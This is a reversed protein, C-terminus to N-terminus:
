TKKTKLCQCGFDNLKVEGFVEGEGPGVDEGGGSDVQVQFRASVGDDQEEAMVGAGMFKCLKLKEELFAVIEEDSMEAPIADRHVCYWYQDKEPFTWTERDLESLRSETGEDLAEADGITLRSLGVEYKLCQRDISLEVAYREAKGFLSIWDWVFWDAGPEHSAGLPMRKGNKYYYQFSFGGKDNLLQLIRNRRIVGENGCHQVEGFSLLRDFSLGFYWKGYLKAFRSLTGAIFARQAKVDKVFLSMAELAAGDIFYDTQIQIAEAERDPKGCYPYYRDREKDSLSRNMEFSLPALNGLSNKLWQCIDSNEGSMRDIWSHPLIHDYDWPCNDEAWVGLNQDFNFWNNAESQCAYLLMGYATQSNYGISILDSIGAESAVKKVDFLADSSDLKAQVSDAVYQVVNPLFPISLRSTGYYTERMSHALGEWLGESLIFRITRGPHSAKEFILEATAALFPAEIIGDRVALLLFLFIDGNSYQCFKTRHWHTLGDPNFVLEDVKSLLQEFRGGCVFDLFEQKGGSVSEEEQVDSSAMNKQSMKIAEALVPTSCFSTTGNETRVSRFCRVALHAIRAPYALGKSEHISEIKARFDDGLHSKLVSYALEEDSPRVGGRGIRTFYVSIEDDTVSGADLFSIYYGRLQDIRGIREKNNQAYLIDDWQWPNQGTLCSQLIDLWNWWHANTEVDAGCAARKKGCWQLFEDFSVNKAASLSTGELFERLLTFPVACGANCPYLEGPYPKEKEAHWKLPPDHDDLRKIAARKQSASLLANRTEDSSDGYGWPQSPTTVRFVFKRQGSAVLEKRPAVDIWLISSRKRPADPPFSDFALAVANSRQQGDLLDFREGGNMKQVCFAGISFGRFISDWLTEIRAANWVKGRQVAPLHLTGNDLMTAVEKLNKQFPLEEFPKDALKPLTSVSDSSKAFIDEVIRSLYKLDDKVDSDKVIPNRFRWYNSSYYTYHYFHRKDGDLASRLIQWQPVFRTPTEVHLEIFFDNGQKSLEYHISKSGASKVPMNVWSGDCCNWDPKSEGNNQQCFFEIFNAKYKEFLEDM